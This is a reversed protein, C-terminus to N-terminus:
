ARRPCFLIYVNTYLLPISLLAQSSDLSQLLIVTVLLDELIELLLEAAIPINHLVFLKALYLMLNMYLLVLLGMDSTKINLTQCNVFPTHKNHHLNNLQLTILSLVHGIKEDLYNDDVGVM